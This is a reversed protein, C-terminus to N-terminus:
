TKTHQNDKPQPFCMKNGCAVCSARWVTRFSVKLGVELPDSFRAPCLDPVLPRGQDRLLDISNSTTFCTLPPGTHPAAQSVTLALAQGIVCWPTEDEGWSSRSPPCPDKDRSFFPLCQLSLRCFLHPDQAILRFIRDVPLSM